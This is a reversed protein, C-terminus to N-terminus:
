TMLDKIEEFPGFSLLSDYRPRLGQATESSGVDFHMFEAIVLTVLSTAPPVQSLVTGLSM